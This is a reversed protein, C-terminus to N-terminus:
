ESGSEQMKSSEQLYGPATLPLFSTPQWTVNSSYTGKQAKLIAMQNNMLKGSIDCFEDGHNASQSMLQKKPMQDFM